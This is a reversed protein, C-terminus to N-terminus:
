PNNVEEGYVSAVYCRMAAILPTEGFSRFAFNVPTGKYAECSIGPTDDYIGFNYFSIHERHIIPGGFKWDTSPTFEGCSCGRVYEPKGNELGLETVGTKRSEFYHNGSLLPIPHQERDLTLHDRLVEANAVWQDLDSGSLESVKMIM